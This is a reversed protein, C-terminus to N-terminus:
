DKKRKRQIDAFLGVNNRTTNLLLDLIWLCVDAAYIALVRCFSGHRGLIGSRWSSRLINPLAVVAVSWLYRKRYLNVRDHRAPNQGNQAGCRLSLIIRSCACHRARHERNCNSKKAARSRCFLRRDLHNRWAFTAVIVAFAAPCYFSM